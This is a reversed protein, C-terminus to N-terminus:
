ATYSTRGCAAHAPAVRAAWQLGRQGNATPPPGFARLQRSVASTASPNWTLFWTRAEKGSSRHKLSSRAGVDPQDLDWM